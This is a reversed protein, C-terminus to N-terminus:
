FSLTKTSRLLGFPGVFVIFVNLIKFSILELISSFPYLNLVFYLSSIKFFILSFLLNLDKLYSFFLVLFLYIEGSYLSMFPIRVKRFPVLGDLCIERVTFVIQDLHRFM